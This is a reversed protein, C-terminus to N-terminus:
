KKNYETVTKILADRIHNKVVMLREPDILNQRDNKDCENFQSLLNLLIHEESRCNTKDKFFRYAFKLATLTDGDVILKKVEEELQGSSVEEIRSSEGEGLEEKILDLWFRFFQENDPNKAHKVQTIAEEMSSELWNSYRLPNVYRKRLDCEKLWLKFSTELNTGLVVGLIKKGSRIENPHKKDINSSFDIIKQIIVQSNASYSKLYEEM